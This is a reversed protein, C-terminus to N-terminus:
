VRHGGYRDLPRVNAISGNRINMRTPIPLRLSPGVLYGTPDRSSGAILGSAALTLVSLEGGM